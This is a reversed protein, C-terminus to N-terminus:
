YRDRQQFGGSVTWWRLDLHDGAPRLFYLETVDVRFLHFPGVHENIRRKVDDDDVHVARGTIRADGEGVNKDVNAAQLSFRPERLLDDAKRSDLMSGLWVEGDLFTPEMGSIRPSGDARLTAIYGLGTAEFRARVDAALEPVAAEVDAWSTV